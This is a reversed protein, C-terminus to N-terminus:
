PGPGDTRYLIEHTPWLAGIAAGIVLGPAAFIAAQQGRTLYFFCASPVNCPGGTAAGAAAGVGAGVGAGVLTNRLRHKNKMLRVIRVDRRQITKEGNKEQLTVADETSSVFLGLDKSNTEVVQIRWGPQLASLNAWSSKGTQALSSCAMALHCLSVFLLSVGRWFRPHFDRPVTKTSEISWLVLRAIEVSNRSM